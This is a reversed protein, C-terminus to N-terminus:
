GTRRHMAVLAAGAMLTLVGGLGLATASLGFLGTSVGAVIPPVSFALYSLVYFGAMLAGREQPEALSVLSRLSGSFASGFGLGAIAAGIFFAATSQLLIGTLSIGLGLTLATAGTVLARRPPWQRVAFIAAASSLVMATILVGGVLPADNGTVIRALTPGLSLYFGGLAWQATNVPLVQWLMPRARAPIAIRPRLSAWSGPRREVTEPLYLAAIMQFAFVVMLVDFVLQTPAPAFQVLMSTGFAGAAMGVMPAVGNVLPGRERHLDLLGASLAGTAIGTAIGQLIRASLLWAVSDARWFLLTAAFELALAGLIVERRGRHDSLRGFVLLAGLLAFAYSSFVVTLTLASFGWADRYLAYLPSPATSAALFSVLLSAKLWLAQGHGWRAQPWGATLPPSVTPVSQM